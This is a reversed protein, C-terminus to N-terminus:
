YAASLTVTGSFDLYHETLEEYTVGGDLMEEGQTELVYSVNEEDLLLLWDLHEFGYWMASAALAKVEAFWHKDIPEACSPRTAQLVKDADLHLIARMLNRNDNEYTALAHAPDGPHNPLYALGIINWGQFLLAYNTNPYLETPPTFARLLAIGDLVTAYHVPQAQLQETLQQALEAPPLGILDTHQIIFEEATLSPAAAAVPAMYPLAPTLQNRM